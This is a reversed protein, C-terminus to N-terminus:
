FLTLEESKTDDRRRSVTSRKRRVRPPRDPDIKTIRGWRNVSVLDGSKMEEAHQKIKRWYRLVWMVEDWREFHAIGSIFIVQSGAASLSKAIERTIKCDYTVCVYGAKSAAPIWIEDAAGRDAFERFNHFSDDGVYELVRKIVPSIHEDGLFIVSRLAM